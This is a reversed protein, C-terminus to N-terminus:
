RIKTTTRQALAGAAPVGYSPQMPENSLRLNQRQKPFQLPLVPQRHQEDRMVQRHHYRTM